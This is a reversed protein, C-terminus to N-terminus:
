QHLKARWDRPVRGQPGPAPQNAPHAHPRVLEPGDSFQETRYDYFWDEGPEFSQLIPHATKQYHSTAHRAPSTDCCGEHGCQACRRLHFWWGGSQLCEVCGDGSPAVRTDIGSAGGEKAASAKNTIM